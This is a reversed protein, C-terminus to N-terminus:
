WSHERTDHWRKAHDGSSGAITSCGTTGLTIGGATSASTPVVNLGSNFIGLLNLSGGNSLSNSIGPLLSIPVTTARLATSALGTNYFGSSYNLSITVGGTFTSASSLVLGSSGTYFNNSALTATVGTMTLGGSLVGSISGASGVVSLSSGITSINVNGPTLTRGTLTTTGVGRDIFQSSGGHTHHQRQHEWLRIM